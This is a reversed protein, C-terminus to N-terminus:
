QSDYSKSLQAIFGQVRLAAQSNILFSYFHNGKVSFSIQFKSSLFYAIFGQSISSQQIVINALLVRM